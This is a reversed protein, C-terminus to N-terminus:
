LQSISTQLPIVFRLHKHRLLWEKLPISKSTFDACQSLSRTLLDCVYNEYLEIWHNGNADQRWAVLFEDWAEHVLHRTTRHQAEDFRSGVSDAKTYSTRILM